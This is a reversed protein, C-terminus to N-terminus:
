EASTSTLTQLFSARDAWDGAELGIAPSSEALQIARFAAEARAAERAALLLRGAALKAERVLPDGPLQGALAAELEALAEPIAGASELNRAYLYRVLADDPHARAAGGLRVLALPSSLEGTLYERLTSQLEIPRELAALRALQLRDSPTSLHLTLVEEYGTRARDVQGLQWEVNALAERATANAKQTTSEIGLAREAYLKAEPLRKQRALASSIAILPAPDNPTYELLQLLDELAGDVDGSSLRGYGRASINAAKHACVKQFIGPRKFRHEAILLDGEPLPLSDIYHEWETVLADLSRGYAEQFDNSSYLVAFKEMGHEDVLFRVFSGAVTYARASSIAWFGAIDLTKRLDPALGLARMARTWGHVTMESSRWDAAVALGEVVGINVLIAGTAPVKFLGAAIEASFAHALEHKLIPHPYDFGDIHIEAAWPRSIQTQGAGMLRQKQGSDRYVFSRIRQSPRFDFFRALQDYRFRHDLVINEVQEPSVSPDIYIELEDTVVKRTLVREISARTLDFGLSEGSRYFSLTAFLLIAVGAIATLRPRSLTVIMQERDLLARVAAAITLAYFFTYGRFAVLTTDVALQEDYISGPWFGFPVSYIFIQPESYLRRLAIAFFAILILAIIIGPLGRRHALTGGLLGLATGFFANGGACLFMFLVGAEPDCPTNFLEVLFGAILSPLLMALNLLLAHAAVRALDSGGKERARRISTVAVIPSTVASVLGTVFAREFGLVDFLPVFCLAVAVLAHVGFTIQVAPRRLADGIASPSM